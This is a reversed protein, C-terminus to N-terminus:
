RLRRRIAAQTDGFGYGDARWRPKHSYHGVDQHAAFQATCIKWATEPFDQALKKMLTVRQDHSAATQPMWAKFISDLSNTPKNVWNDNIEVQSLRALILAARPM